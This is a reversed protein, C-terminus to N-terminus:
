PLRGAGNGSHPAPVKSASRALERTPTQSLHVRTAILDAVALLMMLFTFLVAAAWCVLKAVTWPLIEGLLITLGVTGLLGSTQVRRRFQRWHFERERPDRSVAAVRRWVNLHRAILAASVAFLLAAAILSPWM